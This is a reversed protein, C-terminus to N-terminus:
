FNVSIGLFPPKNLESSVVGGHSEMYTWGDEDEYIKWKGQEIHTKNFELYVPVNRLTPNDLRRVLDSALHIGRLRTDILHVPKSKPHRPYNDVIKNLCWDAIKLYINELQM